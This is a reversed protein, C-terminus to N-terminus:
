FFEDFSGVMQNETVNQVEELYPISQSAGRRSVSIGSAIAASKLASAINGSSLAEALFFGTFTDGAATTDVTGISYIGSTYLEGERSMFVSGESGLTLLINVDPYLQHIKEIIKPPAECGALLAGEVENVILYDVKSLDYTQIRADFPSPNLAIIMGIEKARDIIYDVSSIENQLVILDGASFASLVSDVDAHTIMGNAGASIIICNQGDPMVQIIAHGTPAAVHKLCHTDVGNEKLRAELMAGDPGIAGAFFVECGARALAIAQNFGKGGCFETLNSASTPEGEKVVHDVSYNRDINASGFVVSKMFM